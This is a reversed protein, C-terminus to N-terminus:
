LILLFILVSRFETEDLPDLPPVGADAESESDDDSVYDEDDMDELDSKIKDLLGELFEGLDKRDIQNCINIIEEYREM